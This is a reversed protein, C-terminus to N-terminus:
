PNWSTAHATVCRLRHKMQHLFNMIVSGSYKTELRPNNPWNPYVQSVLLVFSYSPIISELFIKKVFRLCILWRSDSQTFFLSFVCSKVCVYRNSNASHCGLLDGLFYNAHSWEAYQTACVVGKPWYIYIYAIFRVARERASEIWTQVYWTRITTAKIWVQNLDWHRVDM